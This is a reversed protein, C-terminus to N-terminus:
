RTLMVALNAAVIVILLTWTLAGLNNQAAFFMGLACLVMLVFATLHVQFKYESLWNMFDKLTTGM